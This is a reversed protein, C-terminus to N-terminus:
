INYKSFSGQYVQQHQLLSFEEPRVIDNEKWPSNIGSKCILKLVFESCYFHNKRTIHLGFAAFVVGWFNYQYVEKKQYMETIKQQIYQYQEKTVDISMVCVKANKLLPNEPTENVLGGIFPNTVHVRGFSYMTKLSKDLAISVHNYQDGSFVRILKAFVTNTKTIVIYIKKTKM